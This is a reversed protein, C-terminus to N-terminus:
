GGSTDNSKTNLGRNIQEELQLIRQEYLKIIAIKTLMLDTQLAEELIFDARLCLIEGLQKAQDLTILIEGCEIAKYVSTPIGLKRAVKGPSFRFAIRGYKMLFNQM